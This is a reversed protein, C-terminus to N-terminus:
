KGDAAALLTEDSTPENPPSEESSAAEPTEDDAAVGQLAENLEQRWSEAREFQLTERLLRAAEVRRDTRRLVGALYLRAEVDDLRAAVLARLTGEAALWDGRLYEGLAQPFLDEPPSAAFQWPSLNKARVGQVIGAAWVVAVFTWGIARLRPSDFPFETWLFTWAILANLLLGFAAAVALPALSGRWAARAGPWLALPWDRM